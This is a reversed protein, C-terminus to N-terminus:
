AAVLVDSVLEIRKAVKRQADAASLLGSSTYAECLLRRMRHETIGRFFRRFGEQSRLQPVTKPPQQLLAVLESDQMGVAPGTSDDVVAAVTAVAAVAAATTTGRSSSDSSRQQKSSSSCRRESRITPSVLAVRPSSEPPTHTTPSQPRYQRPTTLAATAAATTIAASSTATVREVLVASGHVAAATGTSNSPAAAAVSLHERHFFHLTSSDDNDSGDLGGERATAAATYSEIALLSRHLDFGLSHSASNRRGAKAVATAVADNDSDSSDSSDGTSSPLVANAMFSNKRMSVAIGGTTATAAVTTANASPRRRRHAAIGECAPAAVAAAVVRHRQRQRVTHRDSDSDSDSSQQQQQMRARLPPAAPPTPVTTSSSSSRQQLLQAQAARQKMAARMKSQSAGYPTDGDSSDADSVIAAATAATTSHVAGHKSADNASHESDSSAVASRRRRGRARRQNEINLGSRRPVAAVAAAPLPLELSVVGEWASQQRQQAGSSSSSNNSPKPSATQPRSGLRSPPRAGFSERKPSYQQQQQQQAGSSSSNNDLFAFASPEFSGSLTMAAAATTTPTTATSNSSHAARLSRQQQQPSPTDGATNPRRARLPSAAAAAAACDGNSHHQEIAELCVPASTRKTPPTRPGSSVRQQRSPSATFRQQQSQLLADSHLEELGVTHREGATESRWQRARDDLLPSVVASAATTDMQRAQDLTELVGAYHAAQRLQADIHDGSSLGQKHRRLVSSVSGSFVQGGQTLDSDWGATLVSSSTVAAAASIASDTCNLTGASREATVYRTVCASAQAVVDDSLVATREEKTTSSGDLMRLQEIHCCVLMRGTCAAASSNASDRRKLAALARSLPTGRLDLSYLLSCTGLTEICAMAAIANDRLDLVQLTDHCALASVDDVANHQLNLERLASLAGIGDLRTVGCGALSLTRLQRLGTGLDRFSTFASGDLILTQLVPLLAGIGEVSMAAMDIHLELRALNKLDRTGAMQWLKEENLTCSLIEEMTMSEMGQARESRPTLIPSGTPTALAPNVVKAVLARSKMESMQLRRQEKSTAGIHVPMADHLM